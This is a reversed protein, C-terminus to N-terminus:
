PSVIDTLTGSFVSVSAAPTGVTVTPNTNVVFSPPDNIVSVDPNKEIATPSQCMPSSCNSMVGDSSFKLFLSDYAGSGFGLTYGGIIYSNDSNQISMGGGDASAGGWTKNWLLDGNSSYKLLFADSGGAGFSSTSGSVVYTGDSSLVLGTSKDSATGGWTKDWILDGSSSFKALFVDSSGATFSDTYGTVLFDGNSTQVVNSGQESATGGWLRSWSLTGDSTYKNLFADWCGSGRTDGAWGTVAFGGDSTNIVRRGYENTGSLGWTRTWVINGDTDFKSLFVDYITSANGNVTGGTVVYGGASAEVVGYGTDGKAGGIGINKNWVFMGESSFKVLLVDSNGVAFSSSNGAIVYGGDSAQIVASGSDFGTGYWTSNWVPLGNATFKALIVKGTTSLNSDVYGTSVFGGDNTKGITGGTEYTAAGWAKAFTNTSSGSPVVATAAGNETIQYALASTTHTSTLTFTQGGGSYTLTTGKSAELCYRDDITPSDPCYDQGISDPYYGYEVNYMKLLKNGSDLDSELVAAIARKNISSYSVITIAALIGIVVIVVLLEVITFAKQKENMLMFLNYM